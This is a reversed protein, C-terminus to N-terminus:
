NIATYWSKLARVPQGLNNRTHFPVSGSDYFRATLVYSSLDPKTQELILCALSCRRIQVFFSPLFLWVVLKVKTNKLCTPAKIFCITSTPQSTIDNYTFAGDWPIGGYYRGRQPHFNFHCKHGESGDEWGSMATIMADM